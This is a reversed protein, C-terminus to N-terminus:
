QPLASTASVNIVLRSSAQLVGYFVRVVGLYKVYIAAIVQGQIVTSPTNNSADLVVLYSDIRKPKGPPQFQALVSNLADKMAQRTPDKDPQTPDIPPAGQLDGIFPGMTDLFTRTLFNTMRAEGLSTVGDSALGHALGFMKGRPIPNTFYQIGNQELIEAEAQSIVTGTRETSMFGLMGTEPKNGLYEEPNRSAVLGLWSGLPAVSTTGGIIAPNSVNLYHAVCGVNAASFNAANKATATTDSAVGTPCAIASICLEDQCFQTIAAATSFDSNGALIFESVGTSRLAYMGARTVAGDTGVLITSTISTIGDTGPTSVAFQTGYAPATVSAGSAATWYQSKGRSATGSNVALVLNALATASAYTTSTYAIINDWVEPVAGPFTLTLKLTPATAQSRTGVDIQATAGNAQSGEYAATLTLMIAPTANSDEVLMIAKTQTTDGVRVGLFDDGKEFALLAASIMSHAGGPDNGFVATLSSLDSFAVPKNFPGNSAGGVIGALTTSAGSGTARAIAQNFLYAGDVNIRAPNPQTTTPM